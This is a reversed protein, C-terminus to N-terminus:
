FRMLQQGFKIFIESMIDAHIKSISDRSMDNWSSDIRAQAILVLDDVVSEISPENMEFPTEVKQLIAM